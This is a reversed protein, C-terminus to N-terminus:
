LSCTSTYRRMWRTLPEVVTRGM